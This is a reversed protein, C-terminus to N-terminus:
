VCLEERPMWNSLLGRPESGGAYATLPVVAKTNAVLWAVMGDSFDDLYM